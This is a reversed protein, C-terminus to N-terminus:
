LRGGSRNLNGILVQSHPVTVGSPKDRVSQWELAAPVHMIAIGVRGIREVNVHIPFPLHCFRSLIWPVSRQKAHHAGGERKTRNRTVGSRRLLHWQDDTRLLLVPENGPRLIRKPVFSNIRLTQIGSDEEVAQM